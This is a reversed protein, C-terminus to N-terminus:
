EVEEGFFLEEIRANYYPNVLELDRRSHEWASICSENRCGIAKSLQKQTYGFERRLRKLEEGIM